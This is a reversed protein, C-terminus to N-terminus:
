AEGFKIQLNQKVLQEIMEIQEVNDNAEMMEKTVEISAQELEM